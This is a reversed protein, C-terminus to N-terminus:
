IMFTPRYLGARPPVASVQDELAQALGLLGPLAAMVKGLRGRQFDSWVQEAFVAIYQPNLTPGSPAGYLVRSVRRPTMLADRVAQVDESRVDQEDEM